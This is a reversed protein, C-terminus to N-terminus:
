QLHCARRGYSASGIWAERTLVWMRVRAIMNVAERWDGAVAWGQSRPPRSRTLGEQEHTVLVAAGMRDFLLAAAEHAGNMAERGWGEPTFLTHLEHVFGAGDLHRFLFGGHEAALPLVFPQQACAAVEVPSTGISPAVALHAAVGAWFAGDREIRLSV